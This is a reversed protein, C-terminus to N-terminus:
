RIWSPDKLEADTLCETENLKWTELTWSTESIQVLVTLITAESFSQGKDGEWFGVKGSVHRLWM